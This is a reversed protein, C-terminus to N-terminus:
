TISVRQGAKMRTPLAGPNPKDALLIALSRSKPLGRWGNRLAEDIEFWTVGRADAVRGSYADPWAGTRRFHAKAWLIVDALKLARKRAPDGAVGRITAVVRALTSRQKLGRLGGWLAANVARWSEGPSEKIPGSLIMPWEGTRRHHGKIWAHIQKLTLPPPRKRNRVGRHRELLQLLSGSKPLGHLGYRFSSDIHFWTLGPRGSVPGSRTIPWHGKRRHSEDAWALIEKETLRYPLNERFSVGRHDRLLHSLTYGRRVGCAGDRLANYITAWSFYPPEFHRGSHQNPWKGAKRHHADAWALIDKIAFDAVRESAHGIAGRHARLLKSLSTGRPLGRFGKGLASNIASWTESPASRVQGSQATPWKGAHRHHADAWNLIQDTSLPPEDRGLSRGVSKELFRLLSGARPLGRKGDRFAQDIMIWSIYPAEPVRGSNRNPWMTTRRRHSRAWKAVQVTTLSPTQRTSGFAKNLLRSLWTGGPLGRYGFHLALNISRWTEGHAGVVRGAAHSPWHGTRKYHAEAWAIIQRESLRSKHM